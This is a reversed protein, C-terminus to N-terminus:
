NEEEFLGSLMQRQIPEHDTLWDTIQAMCASSIAWDPVSGDLQLGQIPASSAALTSLYYRSVFQGLDTIKYRVDYFEVLPDEKDHTLCDNRGYADGQEIIRVNWELGFQQDHFTRLKM